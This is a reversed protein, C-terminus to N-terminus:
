TEFTGESDFIQRHIDAHNIKGKGEKLAKQFKEKQEPTYHIKSEEDGKCYWGEADFVVECNPGHLQQGQNLAQKLAQMAGPQNFAGVASIVVFWLRM